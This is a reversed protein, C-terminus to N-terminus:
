TKQRYQRPSLGMHKKFFASFALIDNYGVSEGVSSVSLDTTKLLICARDIRLQNLHAKPPIGRKAKFLNYLYRDDVYIHAAVDAVRISRHYNNEMYLLADRIHADGASLIDPASNISEHLAVLTYFVSLAKASSVTCRGSLRLSHILQKLEPLFPVEFIHNQFTLGTDSLCKKLVGEDGKFILWFYKWPAAEDSHYEHLTGPQIFFGQGQAVQRGNFYGRGELVYHLIYVDRVGPGWHAKASDDEMGMSRVAIERDSSMNVSAHLM